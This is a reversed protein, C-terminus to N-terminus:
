EFYNGKKVPVFKPKADIDGMESKDFAVTIHQTNVAVFFRVNQKKRDHNKLCRQVTYQKCCLGNQVCYINACGAHQVQMKHASTDCITCTARTTHDILIKVSVQDLYQEFDSANEFQKVLKFRCLVPM